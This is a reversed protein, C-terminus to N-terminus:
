EGKAADIAPITTQRAVWGQMVDAVQEAKKWYETCSSTHLDNWRERDARSMKALIHYDGFTAGVIFSRLAPIVLAHNAWIWNQWEALIQDGSGALGYVEGIFEHAYGLLMIPWVDDKDDLPKAGCAPGGVVGIVAGAVKLNPAEFIIRDSPSIFEYLM